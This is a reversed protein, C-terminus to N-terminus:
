QHRGKRAPRRRRALFRYAGYIAAIAGAIATFAGAVQAVPGISSNIQDFVSPQPTPPATVTITIPFTAIEEPLQVGSDTARPYYVFLELSNDGVAAPGTAKLNWEWWTTSKPDVNRLGNDPVANVVFHFTDAGQLTAGMIQHIELSQKASPTPGQSAGLTPSVAQSVIGSGDIELRVQGAEDLRMTAPAFLTVTGEGLKKGSEDVIVIPKNHVDAAPILAPNASTPNVSSAEAACGSLALGILAALATGAALAPAILCPHPTRKGLM